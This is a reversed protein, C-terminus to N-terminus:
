FQFYLFESVKGTMMLLSTVFLIAMTIAWKYNPRFKEMQEPVSKIYYALVLAAFITIFAENGGVHLQGFNIIHSNPVFVDKFNFMRRLIIIAQEVSNARFFVWAVVISIFTLSWNMMTPLQRGFNRWLHNIVIYVGHLGGWIVFTWGAGHWLGGLLMTIIVNRMQIFNGKRNGGLPIYLYNKLFDSLSIHWRRWFNIISTSQYPSKFNVPLKFNFMLGLGIAMESYGSFDYYLQMTYGLAGVWADIFSLTNAHEFVFNVWPAITDAIAVKKFLGICFITVGLAFNKYNFILNKLRSFQPIMDKHYLIPGAILHPFVTVFLSYTFFHYGKTEGRYADVLYATQTFTFFSIGLPLIVTPVIMQTHIVQNITTIFFAMYKFYVLVGLNVVVGLVFISKSRNKEIYKGVTYNFFISIILLPLYKINWQSYFALSAIVLFIIAIKIYKFKTLAFYGLLVIPLYIFIFEYSNFLM